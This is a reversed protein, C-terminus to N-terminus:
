ADNTILVAVQTSIAEGRGEAGVGENTKVKVSVTDMPMQLCQALRERMADLYPNLKPEQAVINADLNAIRWGRDRLMELVRHLLFFSDVERYRPDTDPFHQGINGLAAAGLLADTVAHALADADSYGELGRDFPINVGGLILPRGHVLRHLDYGIGIRIM